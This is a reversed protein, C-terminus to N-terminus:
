AATDGALIVAGGSGNTLVDITVRSLATRTKTHSSANLVSNGGSGAFSIRNADGQIFTASVGALVTSPVSVAIPTGAFGLFFNGGDADTMTYTAGVILTVKKILGGNHLIYKDSDPSYISYAKGGLTIGTLDMECDLFKLNNVDTFTGNLSPKYFSFSGLTGDGDKSFKVEHGFAVACDNGGTMHFQDLTSIMHDVGEVAGDTTDLIAKNGGAAKFVGVNGTDSEPRWTLTKPGGKIAYDTSVTLSVSTDTDNYLLHNAIDQITAWDNQFPLNNVIQQATKGM